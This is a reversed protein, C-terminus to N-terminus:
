LLLDAETLDFAGVLRIVLDARGDGNVDGQILTTGTASDVETRLEGASRSFASAGIFAFAQNGALRTDADIAVLDFVDEGQVFGTIRDTTTPGSYAASTYDFTDAGQGGTITDAGANGRIRDAGASGIIVDNGSGADILVNTLTLASVDITEAATTGYVGVNAFGTADIAEVATFSGAAIRSNAATVRIADFGAGGDFRDLTVNGSVLFVDSGGGGFLSDNGAEGLITDDGDSGYITDNGSGGRIEVIGILQTGRFDLTDATTNGIIAVNSFGNATIREVNAISALSIITNNALARIEDFGAGGDIADYGNAAASGSFTFLDAGGAGSYRDNGAGATFSDNGDAGALADNGASAAFTWRDLSGAPAAFSDAASTGAFSRAESVDVVAITFGRSFALGAPDTVRATISHSAATEFDLLAGAAVRITGSADATFRGGATDTLAYVLGSSDIDSGNLTGVVTGAVSNEAVSAASLTLASPADNVPTISLTFVDSVSTDNASATVTLDLNGNLDLPPTGSFTRTAQDFTLWDPLPGGDALSAAFTLGDGDPDSFSDAPVTFSWTADEASTQDAIANALVPAEDVNTVAITFSRSFSLNGADTVRATIGHSAATEFDLPAGAAVSVVGTTSDVVFRGGASDALAYTLGTDDVDSGALTGVVTGAPSNESVSAGSLTLASPADNVPTITLRFADDASKGNASATVRIDIAGNFDVPPTGTFTRTGTDFALWSPLASGDALSAAYSLTDGDPDSFSTAPVTYSWATDEPSSRDPLLTVRVPAEDINTVNITLSRTLSLGTPDTVTAIISYTRKTEFDLSGTLVLGPGNGALVFKNGESFALQYTLGTNGDPDTGVLTAVQTGARANEPVSNSVTLNRPADDVPLVRLLFDDSASKGNASAIVRLALNGNFDQPPRGSFTRSGANFSLWSPLASGDSLQASFSIPNFEPDAFATSPVVFSWSNDELVTQDAIPAVLQPAEDVNTVTITFSRDYKLGDPDIVLATIRHVSAREFDLDAGPAVTIRGSQPDVVFRGGANDILQYALNSPDGDPRDEVDRGRLQGVFTGAASNEAVTASTLLLDYPADNVPTITLNFVYSDSGGGATAIARVDFSGNFDLPPTGSFTQTASDFTLWVPLASGDALSASLSPPGGEPVVFIGAPLAFTWAEDEASTQDAIAAALQPTNPLDTVAITFGRTFSLGAADTVTATIGHSTATEFDLSAGDAVTVAGTVADVQFRGGANGTLAYTLTGGDVDVGILTGVLTGAASNEAVTANSLALASPADNVQTVTLRFVDSASTGEASATVRLDLAGAFDVPPTGVFTLAAADFTLWTPLPRGDALAAAYALADGDLDGFSGAPVTFSWAAEEPSSQDDIRTVVLPPRNASPSFDGGLVIYAEGANAGGDDGTPKGLIVDAFGDGNVDGASAVSLGLSGTSVTGQLVLGDAGAIDALNVAMRTQGARGFVVYATGAGYPYTGGVILDAFSDANVDGAGAVRVEALPGSGNIAFGDTAALNALDINARAGNAKGYIVYATLANPADVILDDFGDGNVDGAGAVSSGLAHSSLAGQISFGDSASLASLDIVGPMDTRGFLVVARGAGTKSGDGDGHAGIIFDDIGDGNVDGAASISAGAQDGASDGQIVFGDSAPLPTWVSLTISTRTAGAKGLIVYAGGAATGGRNDAPVGIAVDDFGDGNVDGLGAVTADVFGNLISGQVTFGDTAALSSLDIRTRNQGAQGFVVYAQGADHGGGSAYPALLILDDIGDGNVDGAASVRSGAYDGIADGQIVFGDASTLSSLDVRGRDDGLKGYIVYAEGAALGGDDGGPAGVIVDAIGDGNVDGAGAISSGASDGAADGQIVFGSAGALSALDIIQM